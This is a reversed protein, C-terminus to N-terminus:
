LGAPLTELWLTLPEGGPVVAWTLGVPLHEHQRALWVQVRHDYPRSPERVLPTLPLSRGNMQRWEVPLVSFRWEQADGRPGAVPLRLVQGPVLGGQAQALAVLQLVWSLRDQVGPLLPDTHSPGAYSILGKDRQFNVAQVERGRQREVMRLPALGTATVEGRSSWDWWLRDDLQVALHLEYRADGSGPPAPQWTLWASGTAAGRRAQYIWRAAPVLPTNVQPLVEGTPVAADARSAGGADLAPAGEARPEDAGPLGVGAAGAAEGLGGRAAAGAEPMPAPPPATAAPLDAAHQPPEPLPMLGPLEAPAAPAPAAAALAEPAAQAPVDAPRVAGVSAVTDATDATDATDVTAATAPVPGADQDRPEFVRWVQPVTLGVPALRQGLPPAAGQLLLWHALTVAAVLLAGLGARPTTIALM